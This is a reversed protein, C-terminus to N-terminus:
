VCEVDNNLLCETDVNLLFQRNKNGILHLGKNHKSSLYFAPNLSVRCHLIERYSTPREQEDTLKLTKAFDNQKM